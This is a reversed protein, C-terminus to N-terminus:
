QGIRRSVAECLHLIPHTRQRDLFDRFAPQLPCFGRAHLSEHAAPDRLLTQLHDALERPGALNQVNLLILV